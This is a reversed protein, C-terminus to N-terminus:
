EITVGSKLGRWWDEVRMSQKGTPQIRIMRLRADSVGRCLFIQGESREFNLEHAAQACSNQSVLEGEIIRLLGLSTQLFVGPERGLARLKKDIVPIPDRSSIQGDAKSLKPAYTQTGVQPIPTPWHDFVEALADLSLLTLEELLSESTENGALQRHRQTLIPGTDLGKDIEFITIGTEPLGALIAAQVPAAGRLQPLLSFHINIFKPGLNLVEESLIAGYAVVVVVEAGLEQLREVEKKSPRSSKLVPVGLSEAAIAVPNPTTIRKRGVPADPKTLVAVLQEKEALYELVPLM